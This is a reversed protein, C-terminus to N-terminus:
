SHDPDHTLRANDDYFATQAEEFTIGHKQENQLAKQEDWEFTIEGMM